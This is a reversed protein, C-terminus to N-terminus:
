PFVGGNAKFVALDASYQTLAANYAAQAAALAAAADALAAADLVLTNYTVAQAAARRAPKKRRFEQKASRM